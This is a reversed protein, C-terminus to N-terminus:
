LLIVINLPSRADRGNLLLYRLLSVKATPQTTLTLTPMGENKVPSFGSGQQSPKLYSTGKNM